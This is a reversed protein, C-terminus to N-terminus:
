TIKIPFTGWWQCPLKRLFESEYRQVVYSTIKAGEHPFLFLEDNLIIISWNFALKLLKNNFNRLSGQIEIWVYAYHNSKPELPLLADFQQFASM